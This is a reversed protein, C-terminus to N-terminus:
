RDVTTADAIRGQQLMFKLTFNVFVPNDQGANKALLLM